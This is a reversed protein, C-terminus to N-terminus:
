RGRPCAVTPVHQRRQRETQDWTSLSCRHHQGPNSNPGFRRTAGNGAPCTVEGFNRTSLLVCKANPKLVPIHKQLAEYSMLARNTNSADVLRM